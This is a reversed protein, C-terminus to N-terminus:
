AQHERRVVHVNRAVDGEFDIPIDRAVAEELAIQHYAEANANYYTAAEQINADYDREAKDVQPGAAYYETEARTHRDLAAYRDGGLNRVRSFSGGRFLYTDSAEQHRFRAEALDQAAQDKRRGAELRQQKARSLNDADRKHRHYLNEAEVSLQEHNM